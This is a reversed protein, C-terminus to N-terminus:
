SERRGALWADLSWGDDDRGAMLIFIILVVYTFTHGDIDYFPERLAHGYTTIMLLGVFSALVWRVKLGICLLAGGVLEVFPISTGLAWLLPEPIWTEAFAKLFFQETHEAPTLEFVKYWGRVLFLLGLIWRAFFIALGRDSLKGWQTTM